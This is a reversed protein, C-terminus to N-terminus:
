SEYMMLHMIGVSEMIYGEDGNHSIYFRNWADMVSTKHKWGKWGM